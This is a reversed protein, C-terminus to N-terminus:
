PSRGAAAELSGADVLGSLEEQVLHEWRDHGFPPCFGATDLAEARVGQGRLVLEARRVRATFAPSRTTARAAAALAMGVMGEPLSLIRRAGCLELLRRTTLGEWPQLVIAAPEPMSAAFVVGAAVNEVLAVPVPRDGPGAVAVVPLSRALRVLDRTVARGRGHVSTPRYVVVEHPADVPASESTEDLLAREGEAKSVAYPSLPFRRSSEDLPDLRGQVAATSVHVLRRVGVVRAAQAVVAPMVANAAFLSSHDARGPRALGAANVVVAFPELARCLGEFDHGHSLRWSTASARPGASATAIRPARICAVPVGTARSHAVISAGLFGSTGLVAITM